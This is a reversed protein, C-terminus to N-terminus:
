CVPSCKAEFLSVIQPFKHNIDPVLNSAKLRLEQWNIKM